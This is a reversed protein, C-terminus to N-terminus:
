NYIDTDSDRFFYNILINKYLEIWFFFNKKKAFKKKIKSLIKNFLLIVSFNYQPAM